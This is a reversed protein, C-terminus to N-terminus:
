LIFALMTLLGYLVCDSNRNESLLLVAGTQCETHKVQPFLYSKEHIKTTILMFVEAGTFFLRSLSMQQYKVRHQTLNSAKVTIHTIKGVYRHLQTIDQIWVSPAPELWLSLESPLVLVAAKLVWPEVLGEAPVCYQVYM